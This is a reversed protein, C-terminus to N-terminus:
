AYVSFRDLLYFLGGKRRMAKWPSIGDLEQRNTQVWQDLKEPKWLSGILVALRELALATQEYQPSIGAGKEWSLIQAEPVALLRSFEASSFGFVERIGKVQEAFTVEALNDITTEKLVVALDDKWYIRRKPKQLSTLILECNDLLAKWQPDELSTQKGLLDILNESSGTKATLVNAASQQASTWDGSDARLPITQVATSLSSSDERVIIFSNPAM